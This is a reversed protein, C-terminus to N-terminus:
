SSKCFKLLKSDTTDLNLGRGFDPPLSPVVGIGPGQAHQGDTPVSPPQPHQRGFRLPSKDLLGQRYPVPKNTDTDSIRLRFKILGNVGGDEPLSSPASKLSPHHAASGEEFPNPVDLSVNREDTRPLSPFLEPFQELLFRRTEQDEPTGSSNNWGDANHGTSRGDAIDSCIRGV